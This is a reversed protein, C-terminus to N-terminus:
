PGGVSVDIQAVSFVDYKHNVNTAPTTMAKPCRFTWGFNESFTTDDVSLQNYTDIITKTPTTTPAMGVKWTYTLSRGTGSRHWSVVFDRTTGLTYTGSPASGIQTNTTTVRKMFRFGGTAPDANDRVMFSYQSNSLGPNPSYNSTAMRIDAIMDKNNTTNMIFRFRWAIANDNPVNTINLATSPGAYDTTKMFMGHPNNTNSLRLQDSVVSPHTYNQPPGSQPSTSWTRRGTISVGGVVVNDSGGDFVSNAELDTVNFATRTGTGVDGDDWDEAFYLNYTVDALAADHDYSYFESMAHPATGDPRNTSPNNTNIPDFGTGGTSVDKLPIPSQYFNAYTTHPITSTYADLELEKAIGFLSLTGTSPVAM